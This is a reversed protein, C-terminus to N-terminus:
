FTVIKLKLNYKKALEIMHKSGKSVGDWFVVCHTAYKAMAENRRFGASKGYLDWNAPFKKIKFGYEKAWKGGLKDAGYATGSVVEEVKSHQILINLEAKLSEYDNFTRSGAIIVKM